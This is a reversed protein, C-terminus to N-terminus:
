SVDVFATVEVGGGRGALRPGARTAVAGPSDRRVCVSDARGPGHVRRRGHDPRVDGAGRHSPRGARPGRPRCGARAAVGARGRTCARDAFAERVTRLGAKEAAALVASSPLGLLPLSPDFARVADVVAQAQDEHHVIANYLAGHPKVYRVQSGVARALADLAGIQYLVDDALEEPTVDIFRRGFGALDNYSVQAGIM